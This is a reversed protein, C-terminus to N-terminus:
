LWIRLCLHRACCRCAVGLHSSIVVTSRRLGQATLLEIPQSSKMYVEDKM